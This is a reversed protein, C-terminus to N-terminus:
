PTPMPQLPPMPQPQIPGFLKDLGRGLEQQLLGQGREIQKDLLGQVASGALQKAFNELVKGDLQPRTLTGKIPVVLSQGKLATLAGERGKFWSEQLPISTLLNIEQSEIGVSGSTEIKVDGVTMTLGRHHVAGGRVEFPVDQEPLVLWGRNPDVTTAAGAAPDFLTRVQRALGIYQQALPGPGIQAAHIELTGAVDSQTPRMVPVAAGELSLSLTGEARTAEAVLPAVFKLWLRCMEPSIRVKQVLPGREFVVTPTRENLLLQPATTLRGESLPIDLPGIQVVGDAM